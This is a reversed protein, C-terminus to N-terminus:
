RILAAASPKIRLLVGGFWLAMGQWMILAVFALVLWRGGRRWFADLAVALAICVLPAVFYLDRVVMGTAIYAGVALLAAGFWAAVMARAPGRPRLLAFGFTALAMGAPTFGVVLGRVLLQLREGLKASDIMAAGVPITPVQQAFVAPVVASFYLGATLVAAAVLSSVLVARQVPLSRHWRFLVFLGLAAVVLVLAGVHILLALSAALTVPLWLHRPSKQGTPQRLLLWALLLWLPQALANTAFGWWLMAMSIPLASALALALVGARGPLHLARAILLILLCAVADLAAVGVQVTLRPDLLLALPMLLVYGAPPNFTSRNQFESPTSYIYLEGRAADAMWRTHYPLDHMDFLPHVAGFLRILVAFVLLAWAVKAQAPSLWPQVWRVFRPALLVTALLLGGALLLWPGLSSSIWLPDARNAAVPLAVAGGALALSWPWPLKFRWVLTLLLGILGAQGLWQWLGPGAAPGIAGLGIRDLAFGLVRPDGPPTYPTANMRVAVSPSISSGPLLVQYIRNGTTLQIPAFVRGATALTLTPPAGAPRWGHARFVLLRYNAGLNPLRLEAQPQTWRYTETSSQEVGQIGNLYAHDGWAGVDIAIQNASPISWWLALLVLAALSARWVWARGPLVWPVATARAPWRWAREAM